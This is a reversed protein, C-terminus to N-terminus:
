RSKQLSRLSFVDPPLKRDFEAKVYKVVTKNGPKSTPTMEMIAPIKRGDFEKIDKLDLVRMANGKEDYYVQKVPIYSDRYAVIEIKAWVTVTEKKPTLEIYYFEPKAEPPKVLKGVYDDLLTTEKVLDDNTFDSGMWAGMMMSPPIKMVKSINPFYNWMENKIRLTAIGQDKKPSTIYIFTKDLGETWAQMTLVREWHPTIVTMEVDAYSTSSRYLRDIADIVTKVDGSEQAEAFCHWMGSAALLLLVSCIRKM